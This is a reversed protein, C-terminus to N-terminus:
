YLCLNKFIAICYVKVQSTGTVNGEDNYYFREAVLQFVGGSSMMQM